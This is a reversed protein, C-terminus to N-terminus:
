TPSRLLLRKLPRVREWGRRSERVLLRAKAGQVEVPSGRGM